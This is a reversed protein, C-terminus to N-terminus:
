GNCCCCCRRLPSRVVASFDVYFTGGSDPMGSCSLPGVLAEVVRIKGYGGRESAFTKGVRKEEGGGGREREIKAICRGHKETVGFIQRNPNTQLSYDREGVVDARFRENARGAMGLAGEGNRRDNASTPPPSPSQGVRLSSEYIV